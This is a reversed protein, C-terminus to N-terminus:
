LHLGGLESVGGTMHEATHEVGGLPSHGGLLGSDHSSGHESMGGHEHGGHHGHEHSSNGNALPLGATLHEAEPAIDGVHGLVGNAANTDPQVGGTVGATNVDGVLHDLHLENGSGLPSHSDQVQHSDQQNDTHRDVNSTRSEAGHSSNPRLMQDVDGLPSFDALNSEPQEHGGGTSSPVRITNLVAPEHGAASGTPDARPLYGLAALAAGHQAAAESPDASSPHVLRAPLDRTYREVLEVPAHDCVLSAAQVLEAASLGDLGAQTLAQQPGAEFAARAHADTALRHLFEQVTLM